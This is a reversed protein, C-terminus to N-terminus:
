HPRAMYSCNGARLDLRTAAYVYKGGEVKQLGVVWVADFLLPDPLQKAVKNPLWMGAGANLFVVLTKGSAYPAGGKKYKQDIAKLILAEADATAGGRPTPVLVHETQWTEGTITDSIIGDGGTPDSSFTL